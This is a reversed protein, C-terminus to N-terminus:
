KGTSSNPSIQKVVTSVQNLFTHLFHLRWTGFKHTVASWSIFPVILRIEWPPVTSAPTKSNSSGRDDLPYSFQSWHTKEKQCLNQLNKVNSMRFSARACMCVLLCFRFLIFFCTLQSARNSNSMYHSEHLLLVV